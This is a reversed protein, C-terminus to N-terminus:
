HTDREVAKAEEVKSGLVSKFAVTWEALEEADFCHDEEGIPLSAGEIESEADDAAFCHLGM